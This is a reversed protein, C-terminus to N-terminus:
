QLAGSSLEGSVVRHGLSSAYSSYTNIQDVAKCLGHGGVSSTAMTSARHGLGQVRM